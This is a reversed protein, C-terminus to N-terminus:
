QIKDMVKEYVSYNVPDRWEYCCAPCTLSDSCQKLSIIGFYNCNTRPCHRIDSQESAYTKLLVASLQDQQSKSFITYLLDPDYERGCGENPCRVKFDAAFSTRKVETM